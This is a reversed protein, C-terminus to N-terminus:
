STKPGGTGGSTKTKAAKRPRIVDGYKLALAQDVNYEPETRQKIVSVLAPLFDMLAADGPQVDDDGTLERIYTRLKRQEAFTLDNDSLDYEEGDIVLVDPQDEPL